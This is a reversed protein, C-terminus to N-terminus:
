SIEATNLLTNVNQIFLKIRPFIISHDSPPPNSVKQHALQHPIQGHVSDVYQPIQCFFFLFHRSFARSTIPLKPILQYLVYGFSM